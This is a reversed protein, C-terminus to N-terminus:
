FTPSRASGQACGPWAKAAPRHPAGATKPPSPCRGRPAARRSRERWQIFGLASRANAREAGCLEAPCLKRRRSIPNSAPRAGELGGSRMRDPSPPTMRLQGFHLAHIRASQVQKKPPSKIYHLNTPIPPTRTFVRCDIQFPSSQDYRSFITSDTTGDSSHM